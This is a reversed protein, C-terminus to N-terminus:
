KKPAAVNQDLIIRYAKGNWLKALFHRAGDSASKWEYVLTGDTSRGHGADPAAKGTERAAPVIRERVAAIKSRDACSARSVRAENPLDIPVTLDAGGDYVWRWSAGDRVWVTTFYGHGGSANTWPGRNIAVQGDCSVWSEAPAWDISKAPDKRTKLFDQAWVPHPTFMVANGDAWKRFATWQGSTHADRIFAREADVATVVSAALLLSLM